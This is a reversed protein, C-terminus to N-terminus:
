AIAPILHALALCIVAFAVLDLDRTQVLHIIALILAVVALVIELM